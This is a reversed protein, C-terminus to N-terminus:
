TQGSRKGFQLGDPFSRSWVVQWFLRETAHVSGVAILLTGAWRDITMPSSPTKAIDFALGIVFFSLHAALTPPHESTVAFAAAM